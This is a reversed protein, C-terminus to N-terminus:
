HRHSISAVQALREGREVIEHAGKRDGLALGDVVHLRAFEAELEHGARRTPASVGVRGGGCCEVLSDVPVAGRILGCCCGCIRNVNILLTAHANIANYVDHENCELCMFLCWLNLCGARAAGSKM